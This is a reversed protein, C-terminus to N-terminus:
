CQEETKPSHCVNKETKLSLHKSCTKKVQQIYDNTLRQSSFAGVSHTTQLETVWETTETQSNTLDCEYFIPDNSRFHLM